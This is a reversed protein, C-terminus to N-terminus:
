NFIGSEAVRWLKQCPFRNEYLARGVIVSDVGVPILNQIDMLEDKNRIGGAHTVKAGTFEAIENSLHINPGLQTGNRTIDCVIFRNVGVEVMEKSFTRFNIGAKKSRGRILLEEGLVDLSIVIKNPGYKEIVKIFENKNEIAMTNIALRIVGTKMIEDADQLSRIGGAFEVPIVVSSCIEAIVKYNRKSNEHAGDFDKVHIMKANEARWIKAMEVPNNGYEYCDLEPIGQVTRVCKGNKIDIAPIVLLKQNM